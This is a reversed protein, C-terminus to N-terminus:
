ISVCENLLEATMCEYVVSNVWPTTGSVLFDFLCKECFQVYIRGLSFLRCQYLSLSLLSFDLKCIHGFNKFNPALKEFVISQKSHSQRHCLVQKANTGFTHVSEKKESSM